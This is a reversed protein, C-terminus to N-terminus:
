PDVKTSVFATNDALNPDTSDSIMTPQAVINFGGPNPAKWVFTITPTTDGAALPTTLTCIASGVPQPCVWTTGGIDFSSGHDPLPMKMQVGTAPDPGQNTASITYTVCDSNSCGQKTSGLVHDRDATVTVKLDSCTDVKTPTSVTNNGANPDTAISSVKASNTMTVPTTPATVVLTIPAASSLAGLTPQTCQVTGAAQSCTWGDGSASVFTAGQPLTDVVTVTRVDTTGNNSVTLAYTATAGLRVTTPANCVKAADCATISLDSPPAAVVSTSITGSGNNSKNNDPTSASVSATSALTGVTPPVSVVIKFASSANAALAAADCTVKAGSATCTWDGNDSSAQVFLAGDPLTDVVSVLAADSPGNNTVKVAYTLEGGATASAPSAVQIALDANNPRATGADGPPGSQIPQFDDGNSCAALALMAWWLKTTM